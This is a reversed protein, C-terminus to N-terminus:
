LAIGPIRHVKPAGPATVSKPNHPGLKKEKDIPFDFLYLHDVSNVNYYYNLFKITSNNDLLHSCNYSLYYHGRYYCVWNNSMLFVLVRRNNM